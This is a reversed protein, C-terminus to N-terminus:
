TTVQGVRKSKRLFQLVQRSLIVQRQLEASRGDEGIGLNVIHHLSHLIIPHRFAFRRPQIFLGFCGFLNRASAAGRHEQRLYRVPVPSAKAFESVVSPTADTSGDDSVLIEAVEQLATQGLYAHLVRRLPACRNMTPIIVSVM